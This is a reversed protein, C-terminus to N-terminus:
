GNPDQGCRSTALLGVARTAESSDDSVSVGTGGFATMRLSVYPGDLPLSNEDREADSGLMAPLGEIFAAVDFDAPPYVTWRTAYSAGGECPYPFSLDKKAVDAGSPLEAVIRELAATTESTVTEYSPRANVACGTMAMSVLAVAIAGRLRRSVSVMPGSPDASIIRNRDDVGSVIRGVEVPM